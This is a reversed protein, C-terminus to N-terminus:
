GLRFSQVKSYIEAMRSNLENWENKNEETWCRKYALTFLNYFTNINGCLELIDRQKDLNLIMHKKINVIKWM